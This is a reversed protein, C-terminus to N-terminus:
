KAVEGTEAFFFPDVVLPVGRANVDAPYSAANGTQTVLSVVLNTRKTVCQWTLDQDTVQQGPETPWAPPGGGSSTGTDGVVRYALYSSPDPVVWDGVAFDHSPAWQPYLAYYTTPTMGTVTKATLNANTETVDAMVFHIRGTAGVAGMVTGRPSFLVDMQTSYTSPPGVATVWSTPLMSNDLDIVVGRPLLRPEQNPLVAPALELEYQESPNTVGIYPKTLEWNNAGNQSITYWEGGSKPIKIRAGDLLLGRSNLNAWEAPVAGFASAANTVDITGSFKSPAGIYIMSNVVTPDDPSLLFRVGRPAKAYIAQNRAGELFSQVERSGSRIRDSDMTINVVTLTFASLALLISVAVLLEILTFGSRGALPIRLSGTEAIQEFGSSVAPQCGRSARSGEEGARPFLHFSAIYYQSHRSRM